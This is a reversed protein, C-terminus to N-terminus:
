ARLYCSGDVCTKWYSAERVGDILGKLAYILVRPSPKVKIGSREVYNQPPSFMRYLFPLVLRGKSQPFFNKLYYYTHNRTYWYVWKHNTIKGKFKHWLLAKPQYILKYGLRGLRVCADTDDRFCNGKFNEDFGGIKILLERKFSMNCGIFADVEIPQQLPTDFNGLVLGNNFVKGITSHKLPIHFTEKAGYPLVRGGVGAVSGDEYPELIFRSWNKCVVVDDDIYAVVDEKTYKLGINRAKVMSRERIALYGVPYRRVLDPTGDSSCSDVVIVKDPSREMSFLSDLCEELDKCRNYTVIIVSLTLRSV